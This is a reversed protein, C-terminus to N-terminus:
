AAQLMQYAKDILPNGDITRAFLAERYNSKKRLPETHTAFDSVANLFRYGTKEMDSLDPADYYCALLKRRQREANKRQLDSMSEELPVLKGILEEALVHSVNIRNLNEIEKGLQNMYTEAYILTERADQLKGGIDGTHNASWYRQAKRLALNLMNQCVVRIPTMAAKISGSGDHSNLFVIFPAVEDGSIIYREPLKGLLWVKRGDQFTGASEFTVGERLLGETFAFAERNQVLKYRDTVIGLVKGGDERINAWFGGVDKPKAEMTQIPYQRVDWDLGAATLAEDVSRVGRIDRGLGSWPATRHEMTRNGMMQYM